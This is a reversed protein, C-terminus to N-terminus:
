AHFEKHLTEYSDSLSQQCTQTAVFRSDFDELQGTPSQKPAVRTYALTHKAAVHLKTINNRRGLIIYPHLQM